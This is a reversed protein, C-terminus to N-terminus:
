VHICCYIFVIIYFMNKVQKLNQSGDPNIRYSGIQLMENQDTNAIGKQMEEM